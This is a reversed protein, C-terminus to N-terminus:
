FDMASAFTDSLKTAIKDAFIFFLFPELNLSWRLWMETTESLFSEYMNSSWYKCSMTM